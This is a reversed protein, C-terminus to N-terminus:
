VFDYDTAALRAAGVGALLVDFTQDDDAIRYRATGDEIGVFSITAASSFGQLLLTDGGARGLGQFDLITDAGSAAAARTLVFTDAGNGGRLTDAGYGGDLRDAGNGGELSDSGLGGWLEDNGNGGLLRDAGAGGFLQDQGNGGDLVDAGDGAAASPTLLHIEGDLETTYLRGQADTSFSILDGSGIDGGTFVLQDYSNTYETAAGDEIKATFMRPAVFDGFFYLGQAGGPGDYVYGGITARGQLPGFGAERELVPPTLTGPGLPVSSDFEATGEYRPWGFNVPASADASVVNVEERSVLSPDGIYLNGANDFSARFPNRLGLAWVEPAGGEGDAFPNDAPIAYAEGADPASSVDIRLVKGMLSDPSQSV